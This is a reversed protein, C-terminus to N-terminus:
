RNRWASVEIYSRISWLVVRQYAREDLYFQIVNQADQSTVDDPSYGAKDLAEEIKDRDQSKRVARRIEDVFDANKEKLRDISGSKDVPPPNL